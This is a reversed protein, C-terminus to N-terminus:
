LLQVKSKNEIFDKKSAKVLKGAADFSEMKVDMEMRITTESRQVRGKTLNFYITGYGGVNPDSFTYKIGRENIENQGEWKVALSAIIKALTDTQEVPFDDVRFTAINEIQFGAFYSPYKQDWSSNVTILGDTVNRFLQETLPIIGTEILNQKLVKRQEANVSDKIGKIILMENLIEDVHYIDIVEGTRTAKVRYTKNKISEFDVFFIRERTSYIYKSDYDMREGNVIATVNIQKAKVSIDAIDYQDVSNVKLEFIYDATQKVEASITTDAEINQITTLTNTLKYNHIEGPIFKYRISHSISTVSKSAEQNTVAKPKDTENRSESECSIMMGSSLILLSLMFYKKIM